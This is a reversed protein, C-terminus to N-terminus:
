RIKPIRFQRGDISECIRDLNLGYLSHKHFQFGTIAMKTQKVYTM